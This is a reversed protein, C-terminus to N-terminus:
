TRIENKLAGRSTTSFFLKVWGNFRSSSATTFLICKVHEANFAVPLKNSTPTSSACISVTAHSGHAWVDAPTSISWITIDHRPSVFLSPFFISFRKMKKQWKNNNTQKAPSPPPYLWCINLCCKCPDPPIQGGPPRMNTLASLPTYSKPPEQTPPRSVVSCEETVSYATRYKLTKCITEQSSVTNVYVGTITVDTDIKVLNTSKPRPQFLSSHSLFTKSVFETFYFTLTFHFQPFNNQPLVSPHHDLSHFKQQAWVEGAFSAPSNFFIGQSGIM